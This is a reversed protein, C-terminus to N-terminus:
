EKVMFSFVPEIPTELLNKKRQIYIKSRLAKGILCLTSNSQKLDFTWLSKATKYIREVLANFRINCQIIQTVHLFVATVSNDYRVM